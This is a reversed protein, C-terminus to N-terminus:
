MSINKGNITKKAEEFDNGFVNEIHEKIRKEWYADSLLFDCAAKTLNDKINKITDQFSTDPFYRFENSDVLEYAQALKNKLIIAIMRSHELDELTKLFRKQKETENIKPINEITDMKNEKVM